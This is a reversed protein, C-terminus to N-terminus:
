TRKRKYGLWGWRKFYTRAFILLRRDHLNKLYVGKISRYSFMNCYIRAKRLLKTRLPKWCDKKYHRDIAPEVVLFWLIPTATMYIFLIWIM